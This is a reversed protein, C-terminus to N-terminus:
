LDVWINGQENSKVCAEIFRVGDVGDAVTPFPKPPPPLGQKKASVAECFATYINGFAEFYGEPTGPNTRSISKCLSHNYANGASYIESPLGLRAFKLRGADQHQWEIAGKTGFIRVRLDCEQGIAVQSAWLLGSVGNPYEALITTNSEMVLQEPIRDFKALVKVPFLGCMAKVLHVIHTGIDATAQAKGATKPDLRWLANASDEEHLALALWEQPYEANIYSIEGIDGRSIMEYAQSIMAYGSYTYTVAFLLGRERSIRALDLAEDLANTLPKDCVVHFDAKLFAAAIEYHTNNPTVIIVFDLREDAAKQAEAACMEQYDAYVRSSDSIGWLRAYHHNKDANRSFCAATLECRQDLLTGRLHAEGIGGGGGGIMGFKLRM